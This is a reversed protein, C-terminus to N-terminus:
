KQSTRLQKRHQLYTTANSNLLYYKTNPNYLIYANGDTTAIFEIDQLQASANVEEKFTSLSGNVASNYDSMKDKKVTQTEVAAVTSDAVTVESSGLDYSQGAALRIKKNGECRINYTMGDAVATTIGEGVGTITLICQTPTTRTGREGVLKTQASTGNAPYLILVHDKKDSDRYIYSILYNKESTIRSVRKYGPIVDDTSEQDQKEMLVLEYGETSGTTPYDGTANFNMQTEYFLVYRKGNEQCIRFTGPNSGTTAAIKMNGSTTTFFNNAGTNVLYQKTKENYVTYVDTTGTSTIKFEADELKVTDETQSFSDLSSAKGTTHAYLPIGTKVEGGTTQLEAKAIKEDPKKTIGTKKDDAVTYSRTYTEGNSLSVNINQGELEGNGMLLGIDFNDYRISGDLNEWLLGVTGDALESMCSYMYTRSSDPVSYINKVTLTKDDNVLFMTIIGNKRGSPGQPVAVLIAEKGDVKKSYRIATVNCTSTCSVGTKVPKDFAYKGTTADKKADAYCIVGQSSRFFMRLTGDSLEVVESESSWWGGNTSGPVDDTRSWTEGNDSSWIISANEETIGNHYFPIVIDDTSTLIGQGPSVLLADEGSMRKIQPNIIEPDDWTLGDDTSKAYMLYGTNYVHMKSDRYFINQQIDVDTNVQKQTLTDKYEGDEIVYLNYWKDVGYGTASQDARKLIQAYGEDNWDGVYYPYATMDSDTPKISANAYNDTVALYDKGNVKIYGTGQGPRTFNTMTTIGTPNIDALCYIAGDKGQVLAPDIITTAQNGAYGESDPFYLPFSYNWTKGGDKSVSAITDLGGGDGTQSYRADAAALLNGEQTVIFAPIRFKQSGGTGAVFPQNQTVHGEMANIPGAKLLEKEAAEATLPAITLLATATLACVLTISLGQKWVQGKRRKM